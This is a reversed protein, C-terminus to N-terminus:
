RQRLQRDHQNRHRPFASRRPGAHQDIDDRSRRSGASTRPEATRRHYVPQAARGFQSIRDSIGPMRDQDNNEHVHNTVPPQIGAHPQHVQPRHRAHWSRKTIEQIENASDFRRCAAPDVAQLNERLGSEPCLLATKGAEAEAGPDPLTAMRVISPAPPRSLGSRCNGSRQALM